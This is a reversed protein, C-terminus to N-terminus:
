FYVPWFECESGLIHRGDDLRIVTVLKGDADNRVVTGLLEPREGGFMVRARSGVLGSQQPHLNDGDDATLYRGDLCKLIVIRDYHDVDFDFRVVTARMDLGIM